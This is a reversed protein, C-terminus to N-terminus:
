KEFVPQHTSVPAITTFFYKNTKELIDPSATPSILPIQKDDIIPMVANAMIDWVSGIVVPVRDSDTLKQLASIEKKPDTANDELVVEMRKRTSGKKGRLEEVAMRIANSQHEGYNAAVGTMPMIVGIKLTEGDTTLPSTRGVVRWVLLVIVLTAIIIGIIKKM